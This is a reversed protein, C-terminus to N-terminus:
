QKISRRPSAARTEAEAKRSAARDAAPTACAAQKAEPARGSIPAHGPAEPTRPGFAIRELEGWDMADLDIAADLSAAGGEALAFGGAREAGYKAYDLCGGAGHADLLEALTRGDPGVETHALTFGLKEERPASSLYSPVDYPVYPIDGAQALACAAERPTPEAETSLFASTAALEDPSLRSALAALANVREIPAGEPILVGGRPLPGRADYDVIACEDSAPLGAEQRAACEDPSYVGIEELAASLEAPAMPLDLSAERGRGGQLLSLNAVTVRQTSPRAAQPMWDPAYREVWQAPAMSQFDLSSGAERAANSVAARLAAWEQLPIEVNWPRASIEATGPRLLAVYGVIASATVEPVAFGEGYVEPDASLGAGLQVPADLDLGCAAAVGDESARSVNLAFRHADRFTGLRETSEGGYGLSWSGDSDKWLAVGPAGEPGNAWAASLEGGIRLTKFGNGDLREDSVAAGMAAMALPHSAALAPLESFDGIGGSVMAGPLFAAPTLESFRPRSLEERLDWYNEVDDDRGPAPNEALYEPSDWIGVRASDTMADLFAASADAGESLRREFLDLIAATAHPSDAAASIEGISGMDNYMFYAREGDWLFSRELVEDLEEASRTAGDAM